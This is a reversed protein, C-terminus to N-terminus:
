EELYDSMPVVFLDDWRYYALWRGDPSFATLDGDVFPFTDDLVIAQQSDSDYAILGQENHLFIRNPNNPAFTANGRVLLRTDFDSIIHLPTIEPVSWVMIHFEFTDTSVNLLLQRGNQSVDYIRWATGNPMDLPIVQVDAMQNTYGAVYTLVPTLQQDFVVFASSDASWTIHWDQPGHMPNEVYLHLNVREETELDGIVLGFRVMSQSTDLVHDQAAYVVYRRNPSLFIYSGDLPNFNEREADSLAPYFPWVESKDLTQLETNYNYWIYGNDLTDSPIQVDPNDYTAFSLFRSDTSWTLSTVPGEYIPQREHDQATIPKQTPYLLSSMAVFWLMAIGWRGRGLLQNM